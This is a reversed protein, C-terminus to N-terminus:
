RSRTTTSRPGWRPCRSSLCYGRGRPGATACAHLEFYNKFLFPAGIAVFLGGCAGGASISLYYGTLRRAAPRLRYVEGHCVMCCAFLVGLYVAIETFMSANDATNLLWAVPRLWRSTPAVVHDGLM